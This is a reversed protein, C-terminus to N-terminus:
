NRITDTFTEGPDLFGNNAIGAIRQIVRTGNGKDISAFIGPGPTTKLIAAGAANLNAYFVVILRADRIGPSGGLEDSIGPSGGLEIFGMNTDAIVEFSALDKACLLIPDTTKNGARVVVRGNDAIMPRLPISLPTSQNFSSREPLERLIKPTVLFNQTGTRAAFVIDGNNNISFENAITADFDEGLGGRAIIV